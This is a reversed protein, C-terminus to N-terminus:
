ISSGRDREAEDFANTGSGTRTKWVFHEVIRLRGSPLRLVDCRSTGAHVEGTEETQAYRFTLVSGSIAGVLYGRRVRGGHYRGLVREGRQIFALRTSADVVLNNATSSVFM